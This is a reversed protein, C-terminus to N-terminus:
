STASSSSTSATTPTSPSRRSPSPRREGLRSLGNVRRSDPEPNSRRQAWPDGSAWGFGFQLDLKDEIARYETQTALGFQASPRDPELHQISVRDLTGSRGTSRRSRRRSASSGGSSGAGLPRPHLGLRQRPELGNNSARQRRTRRRRRRGPRSSTSTSRATSPTSAATSSSTARALAQAEPARPEHPARRVRVWENVNCLNCTNYRSAATFATPPRTRRAPPRRLGVRRRLLPGDVQHRHRVHDPRDHDPLRLRHRRGREAGHRPGVPRAHPRLPAPRGPDHVRGLGAERQGLEGLQERRRDPPGQTTSSFRLAARLRTRLGASGYGSRTRPTRRTSRTRTPRRGSSSTTSSISRRSSGCTTPSTSRRTRPPLAHEREVADQRLLAARTVPAASTSTTRAAREHRHVVPRAAAAVPEREGGTGPADHRGLFFNHFLEARVRFYGHIEFIPRARGWWDDTFVDTPRTPVSGDTPRQQGQKVLDQTDGTPNPSPVTGTSPAVGPPPPSTSTGAPAPQQQARAAGAWALPALAAALLVLLRPASPRNRLM